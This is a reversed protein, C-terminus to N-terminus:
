PAAPTPVQQGSSWWSEETVTGDEDRLIWHGDRMGSDFHGEALRVGDLLPSLAGKIYPGHRLGDRACWHERVSSSIRLANNHDYVTGDPCGMHVSLIRHQRHEFDEMYVDMDTLILDISDQLLQGLRAADVAPVPEGRLHTSLPTHWYNIDTYCLVIELQQSRPRQLRRKQTMVDLSFLFYNGETCEPPAEEIKLIAAASISSVSPIASSVQALPQFYPSDPRIPINQESELAALIVLFDAHAERLAAVADPDTSLVPDSEPMQPSCDTGMLLVAMPLLHRVKM